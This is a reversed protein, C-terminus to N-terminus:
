RLILYLMKKLQPSNKFVACKGIHVYFRQIIPKTFTKTSGNKRICETHVNYETM